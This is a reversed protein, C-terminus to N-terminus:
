ILGRYFREIDVMSEKVANKAYDKGTGPTTYNKFEVFKGSKTRRGGLEQAAAYREKWEIIANKGEVRRSVNHRLNSSKMPTRPISREYIDELMLRNALLTRNELEEGVLETNLQIYVRGM